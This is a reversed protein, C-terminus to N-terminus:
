LLPMHASSKWLLKLFHLRLGHELAELYVPVCGPPNNVKNSPSPIVVQYNQKFSFKVEYNIIKKLTDHFSLDIYHTSPGDKSNSWAPGSSLIPDQDLEEVIDTPPMGVSAFLGLLPNAISV